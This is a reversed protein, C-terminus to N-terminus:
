QATYFLMTDNYLHYATKFFSCSMGDCIDIASWVRDKSSQVQGEDEPHKLRLLRPVPIREALYGVATYPERVQAVPYIGALIQFLNLVVFSILYQIAIKVIFQIKSCRLKMFLFYYHLGVTFCLKWIIIQPVFTCDYPAM